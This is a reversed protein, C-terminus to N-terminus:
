TFYIKEIIRGMYRLSLSGSNNERNEMIFSGKENKAPVNGWPKFIFLCVFLFAIHGLKEEVEIQGLELRHSVLLLQM